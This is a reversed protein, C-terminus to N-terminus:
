KDRNINQWIISLQGLAFGALLGIFCGIFGYIMNDLDWTFARGFANLLEEM